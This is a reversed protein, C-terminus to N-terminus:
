HPMATVASTAPAASVARAVEESPLGLLGLMAARAAEPDHREILDILAVHRDIDVLQKADEDGAMSFLWFRAAKHQLPIVIRALTANRSARAIAAHFRQDMVILARLDRRAVADEAGVFAQRMAWIDSPAANQAALSAIHPEILGRAEFAQRAEILDLPAVTTGSRAKRVVLGELALRGLADRVGALGADYRRTLDGEDLRAGPALEGLIIDLLIQEYVRTKRLDPSWESFGVGDAVATSPAASIM